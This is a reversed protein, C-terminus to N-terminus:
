LVLKLLADVDPQEDVLSLREIEDSLPILWANNEKTYDGLTELVELLVAATAPDKADKLFKKKAEEFAKLFAKLRLSADDTGSLLKAKEELEDIVPKSFADAVKGGAYGIVKETAVFLLFLASLTVPDM